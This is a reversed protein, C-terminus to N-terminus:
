LLRSVAAARRCPWRRHGSAAIAFCFVGGAVREVDTQNVDDHRPCEFPRGHLHRIRFESTPAPELVLVAGLQIRPAKSTIASARRSATEADLQYPAALGLWNSVM